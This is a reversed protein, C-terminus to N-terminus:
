CRPCRATGCGSLRPDKGGWMAKQLFDIEEKILSDGNRKKLIIDVARM